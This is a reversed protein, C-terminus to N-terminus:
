SCCSRGSTSRSCTARPACPPPPPASPSRTPLSARARGRRRRRDPAARQRRRRPGPRPRGPLLAPSRQADGAAGGRRAPRRRGARLGRRVRGRARARRRAQHVAPRRRLSVAGALQEAIADAREALAGETVVVPNVSGMEAYVPIPEPRRAAREYLARGAALSGTFGVAAIAPADVLAEGVDNGPGQVLAFAGDPLGADARAAGACRPSSGREHGSPVPPGQRGGPLRRRARSATDGGAVGFALPFNSAGFVAVPGIPVLM